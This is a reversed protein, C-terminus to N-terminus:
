VGGHDSAAGQAQQLGGAASTTTSATSCSPSGTPQSRPTSDARVALLSRLTTDTSRRRTPKGGHWMALPPPAPLFTPASVDRPVSELERVLNTSTQLYWDVLDDDDPWVAALDPWYEGLDSHEDPIWVDAAGRRQSLNVAAWLQIEGLHRVLDRVSWGPCTPVPADWQGGRAAAAFAQGERAVSRVHAEIAIPSTPTAGSASHETGTATTM